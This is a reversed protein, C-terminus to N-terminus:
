TPISVSSHGLLWGASPHPKPLSVSQAIAQALVRDDANLGKAAMVRHTLERTDLPGEAKLAAMCLGTIEGRRLIRNLEICAPVEAPDGSLEFL